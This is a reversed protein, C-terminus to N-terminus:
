QKVLTLLSAPIAPEKVEHEVPFGGWSALSVPDSEYSGDIIEDFYMGNGSALRNLEQEDGFYVGHGVDELGEVMAAIKLDFGEYLWADIQDSWADYAQKQEETLEEADVASILENAEDSLWVSRGEPTLFNEHTILCFITKASEMKIEDDNGPDHDNGPDITCFVIHEDSWNM